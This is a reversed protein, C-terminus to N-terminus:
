DETKTLADAISLAYPHHKRLFIPMKNRAQRAADMSDFTGYFVFLTPPNTKKSLIHLQDKITFYEDLVLLKEVNAAAQDSTLMMLQITYESRYAGALWGASARVREQFLERGDRKEAEGPHSEVDEGTFEQEDHSSAGNDVADALVTTEQQLPTEEVVVKEPIAQVSESEAKEAEKGVSPANTAIPAPDPTVSIEELEDDGSFFFVM